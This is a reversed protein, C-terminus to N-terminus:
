ILLGLGNIQQEQEECSIITYIRTTNISSHGLIDALHCVDKEAKYYTVAFLHRLNHPFVKDRDVEADECLKKMSHFINSRDLPKGNRTVFISGSRINEARVYATLERCLEAPILVIRTKGKLSVVARRTYLAEVTVYPLESIRIGTACITQILMGLQRKGHRQATKVLRIYEEKTLEREKTRFVNKQVKFSKVSCGECGATRLFCNVAAVKSNASTVAYRETLSEKYAIVRDKTIESGEGLEELFQKTDRLYKEITAQSKEETKMNKKFKLLMETQNIKQTM